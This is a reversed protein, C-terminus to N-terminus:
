PRVVTSDMFTVGSLDLLSSTTNSSLVSRLADDLKAVNSLDYESTM